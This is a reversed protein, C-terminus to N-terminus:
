ARSSSNQHPANRWSYWLDRRNGNICVIREDKELPRVFTEYVLRAREGKDLFLRIIYGNSNHSDYGMIDNLHNLASFKASMEDAKDLTSDISKGCFTNICNSGRSINNAASPLADATTNNDSQM